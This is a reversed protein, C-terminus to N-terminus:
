RLGLIEIEEDTLKSLIDKKRDELERNKDLEQHKEWWEALERAEKIRADKFLKTLDKESSKKLLACLKKTNEELHKVGCLVPERFGIFNVTKYVYLLLNYVKDAELRLQDHDDISEDYTCPMDLDKTKQYFILSALISNKRKAREEAEQKIAWERAKIMAINVM